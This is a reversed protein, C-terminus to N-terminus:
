ATSPSRLRRAVAQSLSRVRRAARHVLVEAQGFPNWGLLRAIEAPSRRQEYGLFPKAWDQLLRADWPDNFLIPHSKRVHAEAFCEVLASAHRWNKQYWPVARYDELKLEAYPGWISVRCGCFSAYAVHSGLVNTTMFEFSEFMRRMRRLANRDTSDAGILWPIGIRELARTWGGERACPASICAVVQDFRGRISALADVYAGEDFSHVANAVRHAPMILLSNPLRRAGSPQTYLFPVGAAHVRLYGDDRLCRVQWDNAVLQRTLRNGETVLMRPARITPEFFVGHKWSASSIPPSQLGLATAILDSAGYYDAETRRAIPESAPLEATLWGLRADGNNGNAM